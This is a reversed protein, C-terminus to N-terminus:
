LIILVDPIVAIARLIEIIIEASEAELTYTVSLHKQNASQRRTQLVLGPFQTELARVGAEFAASQKGVFKFPFHHPFTENGLLERLRQYQPM